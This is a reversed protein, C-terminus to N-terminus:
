EEHTIDSKSKQFRQALYQNWRDREAPTLNSYSPVSGYELSADRIKTREDRTLYDSPNTGSGDSFTIKPDWVPGGREHTRWKFLMKVAKQCNTKHANSADSRALERMWADAHDTSINSTYGGEEEWVFRYFQDMRSSRPKVTGLAAKERM